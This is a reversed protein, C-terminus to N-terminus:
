AARRAETAEARLILALAGGWFAVGEADNAATSLLLETWVARALREPWHDTPVIAAFSPEPTNM